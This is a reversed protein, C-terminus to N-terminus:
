SPGLLEKIRALVSTLRADAELILQMQGLSPPNEIHLTKRLGGAAVSFEETLREFESMEASSLESRQKIM